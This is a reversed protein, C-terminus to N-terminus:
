QTFGYKIKMEPLKGLIDQSKIELQFQTFGFIEHMRDVFSKGYRKRYRNIISDNIAKEKNKSYYRENARKQSLKREEPTLM